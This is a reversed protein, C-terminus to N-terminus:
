HGPPLRNRKRANRNRERQHHCEILIALVGTGLVLTLAGAISLLHLTIANM